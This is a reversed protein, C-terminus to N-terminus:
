LSDRKKRMFVYYLDVIDAKRVLDLVDYHFIYVTDSKRLIDLALSHEFPAIGNVKGCLYETRELVCMVSAYNVAIYLGLINHQERVTGYLDHIEANSVEVTLGVLGDGFLRYTGHMIDARFLCSAFNGVLLAIDVGDAYHEILHEGANLWKVTIVGNRNCQLM